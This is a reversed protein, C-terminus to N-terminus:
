GSAEATVQIRVWSTLLYKLHLHPQLEILHFRRLKMLESGNDIFQYSLLPPSILSFSSYTRFAKLNNRSNFLFILM